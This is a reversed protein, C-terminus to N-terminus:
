YNDNQYVPAYLPALEDHEDGVEISSRNCSGDKRM